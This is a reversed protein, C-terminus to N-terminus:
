RTKKQKKFLIVGQLIFYFSFGMAKGQRAEVQKWTWEGEELSYTLAPALLAAEGALLMLFSDPQVSFTKGARHKNAKHPSAPANFAKQFSLSFFFFLM